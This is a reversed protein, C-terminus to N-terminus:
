AVATAQSHGPLPTSQLEMMTAFYSTLHRLQDAQVDFHLQQFKAPFGCKYVSSAICCVAICTM